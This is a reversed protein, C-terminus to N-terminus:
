QSQAPGSPGASGNGTAHAPTAAAAGGTVGGVTITHSTVNGKIDKKQKKGLTGRKERTARVRAAKLAKQDATLQTQKRPKFGFDAQVAAAKKGFKLAVLSKLALLLAEAAIQLLQEAKVADSLHGRATDTADASTILDQFRAKVQAPTLSEGDLPLSPESSLHKDIGTIANRCRDRLVTRSKSNM